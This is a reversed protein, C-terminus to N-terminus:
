QKFCLYYTHGPQARVGDLWKCRSAPGIRADACARIICVFRYRTVRIIKRVYRFRFASPVEHLLSSFISLGVRHMGRGSTLQVADRLRQM